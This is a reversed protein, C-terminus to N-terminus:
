PMPESPQANVAVVLRVLVGILAPLELVREPSAQLPALAEPYATAILGAENCGLSYRQQSIWDRLELPGPPTPAGPVLAAVM